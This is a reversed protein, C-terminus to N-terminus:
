EVEDTTGSYPTMLNRVEYTIQSLSLSSPNTLPRETAPDIKKFEADGFAKLFKQINFQFALQCQKQDKDLFTLASVQSSIYPAGFGPIAKTPGVSVFQLTKDNVKKLVVDFANSFAQNEDVGTEINGNMIEGSWSQIKLSDNQQPISQIWNLNDCVIQDPKFFSAWGKKSITDFWMMIRGEDALVRPETAGNPKIKLIQGIKAPNPHKVWMLYLAMAAMDMKLTCSSLIQATDCTNEIQNMGLDVGQVHGIAQTFRAIRGDQFDVFYQSDKQMLKPKPKAAPQNAGPVQPVPVAGGDVAKATLGFVFPVLLSALVARKM